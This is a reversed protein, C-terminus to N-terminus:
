SEAIMADVEIARPKFRTDLAVKNNEKDERSLTGWVKQLQETGQEAADALQLAPPRDDQEIEEPPQEQTKPRGPGGVANQNGILSRSRNSLEQPPASKDTSPIDEVETEDLWGLGCISLTVRRKAKTIAKMVMNARIDAKIHDPLSIVGYDEDARGDPTKARTHVTMLEGMLQRSVIEVSIGHIMRLQDAGARTVYEVLKGNLVIYEIPRTLPNLGLSKCVAIYRQNRQEASLKSLDGYAIAAEISNAAAHQTVVNNM